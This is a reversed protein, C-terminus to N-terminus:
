KGKNTLKLREPGSLGGWVGETEKNTIAYELCKQRISCSACVAKAQNEFYAEFWLDPDHIQLHFGAVTTTEACAAGEWINEQESM